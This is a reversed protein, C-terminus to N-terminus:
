IYGAGKGPELCKESLSALLQGFSEALKSGSTDIIAHAQAYYPERADLIRRLAAMADDNNEIPRMDGQDIVRQMHQEPEAKIWVFIIPL